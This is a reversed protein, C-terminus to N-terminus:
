LRASVGPVNALPNEDHGAQWAKDERARQPRLRFYAMYRMVSTWNHGRRHALLSHAVVVDGQELRLQRPEDLDVGDSGTQYIEPYAKHLAVNLHSGPFVTLGGWSRSEPPSSLAVGVLLAFGNPIRGLGDIHYERGSRDDGRDEFAERRAGSPIAFAMQCVSPREPEDGLIQTLLTRLPSLLALHERRTEVRVTHLGRETDGPALRCRPARRELGAHALEGLLINASRLVRAARAGTGLTAARFVLYGDRHFAKALEHTLTPLESPDEPHAVCQVLSRETDEESPESELGAARVRMRSPQLGEDLRTWRGLDRPFVGFLYSGYRSRREGQVALKWQRRGNPFTQRWLYTASSEPALYVWDGAAGERAWPNPKAPELRKLFESTRVRHYTQNLAPEAGSVEVSEPHEDAEDNAIVSGSSERRARKRVPSDPESRKRRGCVSPFGALMFFSGV